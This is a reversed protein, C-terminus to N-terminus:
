GEKVTGTIAAIATIPTTNVKVPTADVCTIRYKIDGKESSLACDTYPSTATYDFTNGPTPKICYNNDAPITPCGNTDLDQPYLSHEVYYLKLKKSANALDSKLTAETARATIGRYSVFVITSLLAIIVITILLEVITFGALKSRELNNNKSM